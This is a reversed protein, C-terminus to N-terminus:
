IFPSLGAQEMILSIRQAQASDTSTMYYKLNKTNINRRRFIRNCWHAVICFPYFLKHKRSIPYLDSIFGYSPFLRRFFAKAPNQKKGTSKEAKLASQLLSDRSIGFTCACLIFDALLSDTNPIGGSFWNYSLCRIKDEFDILKLKSLETSLYARDLTKGHAEYFVFVDMIMRVGAGGSLMHKSLHSLLYLYADEDRLCGVLSDSSYVARSLIDSFYTHSTDYADASSAHLEYHHLNDKTFDLESGTEDLTYGFDTFVDIVQQKNNADYIIDVDTMTRMAPIRYDNKLVYGKVPLVRVGKDSLSKLLRETEFTINSESVLSLAQHQRFINNIEECPQYEAPLQSVSYSVMGALSHFESLSLLSAWDM